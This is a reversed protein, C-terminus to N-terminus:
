SVASESAEREARTAEEVAAQEAARLEAGRECVIRVAEDAGDVLHILDLDAAAIMGRGLVPGRLWELLGSWYDVGVLVIPFETVKHTQVLTLAEFLEDFTGFGGPLVVFGEAYKVFMTKRAFFYRFNVGLDVWQNMGQEFPLEIGLGVSLGGAESAGKNAAEMIGPGGGTIVGYGAEALGRGVAEGILYDPSGAPTRASGFVSVAPGVEALAGFGEVFESQIRMVRWPDSHLWGAGDAGSLLREDSTTAPIQDRRLQLPGKRYVSGNAGRDHSRM